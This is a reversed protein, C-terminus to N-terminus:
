VNKDLLPVLVLAAKRYATAASSNSNAAGLAQGLVQAAFESTLRPGDWYSGDDVTGSQCSARREAPVCVWMPAERDPAYEGNFQQQPRIKEVAHVSQRGRKQASARVLPFAAVTTM